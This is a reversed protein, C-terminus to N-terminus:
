PSSAPSPITRRKKRYRARVVKRMIESGKSGSRLAGSARGGSRSFEKLVLPKAREVLKKSIRAVGGNPFLPRERGEWVASMRKEAEPNIRPVFEVAFLECFLAFTGYTIGREESPGLIKNTHGKTLGGRDDCLDNTLGRHEKMLRFVDVVDQMTRVVPLDPPATM